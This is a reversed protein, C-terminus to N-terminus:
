EKPSLLINWLYITNLKKLEELMKSYAEEGSALYTTKTYKHMATGAINTIYNAICLADHDHRIEDKVNEGTQVRSFADKIPKLKKLQRKTVRKNAFLFYLTVGLFPLCSVIIMWTLKYANNSRSNITYIDILFIVVMYAILIYLSYEAYYTTLLAIFGSVLLIELLLAFSVWFIRNFILKTLKNM